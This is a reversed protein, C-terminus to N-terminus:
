MPVGYIKAPTFYDKLEMGAKVASSYGGVQDYDVPVYTGAPIPDGELTRRGALPYSLYLTPVAAEARVFCVAHGENGLFFGAVFAPWGWFRFFECSYLAFDECDGGGQAVFDDPRLATDNALYRFHRYTFSQFRQVEDWTLGGSGDTDFQTFLRVLERTAWPTKALYTEVRRSTPSPPLPPPSPTPRPTTRRYEEVKAPSFDKLSVTFATTDVAGIDLDPLDIAPVEVGLDALRLGPIHVGPIHRGPIHLAPIVISQAAVPGALALALAVALAAAPKM